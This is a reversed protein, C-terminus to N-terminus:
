LMSIPENLWIPMTIKTMDKGISGKLISWISYSQNEPILAPLRERMRMTYTVPIGGFGIISNSSRLSPQKAIVLPAEDKREEEVILNNKLPGKNTLTHVQHSTQKNPGGFDLNTPEIFHSKKNPHNHQDIPSGPSFPNLDGQNTKLPSGITNRMVTDAGNIFDERKFV